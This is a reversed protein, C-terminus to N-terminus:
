ERKRRCLFELKKTFWCSSYTTTFSNILSYIVMRHESHPIFGQFLSVFEVSHEYLSNVTSTDIVPSSLDIIFESFMMFMARYEVPMDHRLLYFMLPFLSKIINMKINYKSM